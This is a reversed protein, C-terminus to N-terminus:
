SAADPHRRAAVSASRLLNRGSPTRGEGDDPGGPRQARQPRVGGVGPVLQLRVGRRVQGRIWGATAARPEWERGVAFTGVHAGDIRVDLQHPQGLGRVYSYEQKRLDLRIVYEGDVPFNHEIAAGGRSGFPLDISVTDNQDLAGPIPYFQAKPRLNLDGVVLRSIRQAASLYREILTPSVSLVEAINDFGDHEDDAPLLEHVDVDLAFLDRIANAYEVRNLRHVTPRGPDPKAMAARDLETELWSVFARSAPAEPRPRGAPPMANARLKRVVHEWVAAAEGVQSVDMADGDLTLGATKTRENHCTVCYTDLLVRADSAASETSTISAQEARLSLQGPSALILTVAVVGGGILALRSM